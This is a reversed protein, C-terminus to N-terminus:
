FACSTDTDSTFSCAPSLQIFLGTDHLDSDSDNLGAHLRHEEQLATGLSLAQSGRDSSPVNACQLVPSVAELEQAGKRDLSFKSLKAMDWIPGLAM